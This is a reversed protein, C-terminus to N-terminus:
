LYNWDLVGRRNKCASIGDGGGGKKGFVECRGEEM